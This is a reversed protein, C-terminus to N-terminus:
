IRYEGTLLGGFDMIYPNAIECQAKKRLTTFRDSNKKLVIM